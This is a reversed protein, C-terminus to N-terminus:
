GVRDADGEFSCRGQVASTRMEGRTGLGARGLNQGHCIIASGLGDLKHILATGAILALMREKELSRPTCERSTTGRLLFQQAPRASYMGLPRGRLKPLPQRSTAQNSLRTPEM